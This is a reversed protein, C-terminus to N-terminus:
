KIFTSKGDGAQESAVIYVNATEKELRKNYAKQSESITASSQEEPKSMMEKTFQYLLEIESNGVLCLKLKFKRDEERERAALRRQYEKIRDVINQQHTRSLNEFGLM